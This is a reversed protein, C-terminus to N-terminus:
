SRNFLGFRNAAAAMGAGAPLPEGTLPDTLPQVAEVEDGVEPTAGHSSPEASGPAPAGTSVEVKYYTKVELAVEDMRFIRADTVQEQNRLHEVFRVAEDLADAQHYGTKGENSRFIVMHSM